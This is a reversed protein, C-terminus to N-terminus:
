PAAANRALGTYGAVALTAFLWGLATGLYTVLV